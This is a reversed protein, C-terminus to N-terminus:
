RILIGIAGMLPFALVGVAFATANWRATTGSRRAYLYTPVAAIVWLVLALFFAFNVAYGPPIGLLGLILGSLLFLLAGVGFGVAVLVVRVAVSKLTM